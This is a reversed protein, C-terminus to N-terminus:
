NFSPHVLQQFFGQLYSPYMVISFLIGFVGGWLHADHNINDAQKRGAYVCYAVYLVAYLIAPVPIAAFIYIKNWPAIFIYAFIVASVAGSAGISRYGYDRRHKIYSPVDSIILALLYFGVFYYSPFLYHEVIPGFCFLTFMNFFLHMFDAHVFGSTVFRYFQKRSDVMVPWMSLDNVAKANNFSTFSIIATIIIIGLSITM